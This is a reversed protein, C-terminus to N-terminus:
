CIQKQKSCKINEEFFKHFIKGTFAASTELYETKDELKDCMKLSLNEPQVKYNSVKNLISARPFNREPNPSMIIEDSFSETASGLGDLEIMTNGNESDCKSPKTAQQSHGEPSPTQPVELKEQSYPKNSHDSFKAKKWKRIRITPTILTKQKKWKRIKMNAIKM